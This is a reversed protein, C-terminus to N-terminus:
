MQNKYYYDFHMKIYDAVKMITEDTFTKKYPVSGIPVIINYQNTVPLYEIIFEDYPNMAKNPSNYYVRNSKNQENVKSRIWQQEVFYKDVINTLTDM